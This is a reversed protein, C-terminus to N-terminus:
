GQGFGIGWYDINKEFKKNNFFGRGDILLPNKMIKKLLEPTIKSFEPWSTILLCADSGKLVDELSDAFKFNLNKLPPKANNLNVKPDYAVVEARKSLLEKIVSIAPSGRTDDTDPKFALGLVAIKKGSLNKLEKEAFDVMKLAQKENIELVSSLLLPKYKKKNSFSILAKVDKPFCSGGFGCGPILYTLIGPNVRKKNLIPNLRKDLHVGRLVEFTDAGPIKECVNAIENSFSILTSLLANNAYKIMEANNLSTRLIDTKFPKYAGALLNGSKKDLQGIVIRDPKIFDNIANGERLFEPNMCLGFNTGAKKGSFREILPLVVKLTTEPTVTSKVVVLHYNIKKKLIKGIQESTKEIFSLDISGDKKSPTPVAIFTIDTNLVASKLDTTASFRKKRLVKKLLKELNKEYIPSRGTNINEVKEKDIDVCIVKHGASALGVGTVLGVYGTGIVSVRM